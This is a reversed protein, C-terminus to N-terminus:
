PVARRLATALGETGVFSRNGAPSRGDLQLMLHRDKWMSLQDLRDRDAACGVHFVYERWEVSYRDAGISVVHRDPAALARRLHAAADEVLRAGMGPLMGELWGGIEELVDVEVGSAGGDLVFDNPRRRLLHLEHGHDDRMWVGISAGTDVYALVEPSGGFHSELVHEPVPDLPLWAWEGSAPSAPEPPLPQVDPKGLPPTAQPALRTILTVGIVVPIAVALRRTEAWVHAWANSTGSPPSAAPIVLCLIAMVLAGFGWVIWHDAPRLHHTLQLRDLLAFGGGMVVYYVVVGELVSVGRRSTSKGSSEM